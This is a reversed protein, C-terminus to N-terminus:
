QPPKEKQMTKRQVDNEKERQAHPSTPIAYCLMQPHPSSLLDCKRKIIAHHHHNSPQITTLVPPAGPGSTQYQSERLSRGVFVCVQSLSM